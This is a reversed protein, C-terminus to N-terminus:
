LKCCGTVMATDDEQSLNPIVQGFILIRIPNHHIINSYQEPVKEGLHEWSAASSEETATSVVPDIRSWCRTQGLIQTSHLLCHLSEKSTTPCISEYKM